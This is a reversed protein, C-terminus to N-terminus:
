FPSKRAAGWRVPFDAEQLAIQHRFEMPATDDSDIDIKPGVLLAIGARQNGFSDAFGELRM